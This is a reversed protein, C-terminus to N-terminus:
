QFVERLASYRGTYPTLVPMDLLKQHWAPALGFFVPREVGRFFGAVFTLLDHNPLLYLVRKAVREGGM